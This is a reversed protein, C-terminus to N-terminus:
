KVAPKNSIYVSDMNKFREGQIHIFNANKYEGIFYLECSAFFSKDDHTPQNKIANTIIGGQIDQIDIAWKTLHLSNHSGGAETNRKFCRFSSNINARVDYKFRKLIHDRFKELRDVANFWETINTDMMQAIENEPLVERRYTKENYYYLWPRIKTLIDQKTYRITIPFSM